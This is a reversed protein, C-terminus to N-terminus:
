RDSLYNSSGNTIMPGTRYLGPKGKRWYKPFRNFLDASEENLEFADLRQCPLKCHILVFRAFAKTLVSWYQNCGYQQGLLIGHSHIQRFIEIKFNVDKTESIDPAFAFMNVELTKEPCVGVDEFSVGDKPKLYHQFDLKVGEQCCIRGIKLNCTALPQPRDSSLDFAMLTKLWPVKGVLNAEKWLQEPSETNLHDGAYIRMYEKFCIERSLALLANNRTVEQVRIHMNVQM